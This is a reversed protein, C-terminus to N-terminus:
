RPPLRSVEPADHDAELLSRDDHTARLRPLLRGEEEEFAPAAPVISGAVAVQVAVSLLNWWRRHWGLELRRRLVRGADQCHARVLDRVLQRSNECFRGFVEAAVVVFAVQGSTAVDHYVRSKDGYAAAFTSGSVTAAGPHPVGERSFPSRLTADLLLPLGGRVDLGYAAVDLRRTDTEAVGLIGLRRVMPQPVSRTAGAERVIRLLARELVEARRRLRGTATCAFHHFGFTDVARGGHDCVGGYAPLLLWLRLRAISRMM